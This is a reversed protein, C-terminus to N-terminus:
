QDKAKGRGALIRRLGRGRLRGRGLGSGRGGWLAAASAPIDSAAGAVDAFARALACALGSLSDAFTGPIEHSQMRETCCLINALAGSFCAFIYSYASGLPGALDEFASAFQDCLREM